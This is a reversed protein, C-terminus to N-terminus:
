CMDGSIKGDMSIHLFGCDGFMYPMYSTKELQLYYEGYDRNQCSAQHGGFKVGETSSDDNFRDNLYSLLSDNEDSDVTFELEHEIIEKWNPLKMIEEFEEVLNEYNVGYREEVLEWDKIWYHPHCVTDMPASVLECESTTFRYYKVCPYYQREHNRCGKCDDDVCLFVQTRKYSGRMPDLTSLILTLPKKCQTCKPWETGGELFAKNGGFFGINSVTDSIVPKYAKATKYIIKKNM